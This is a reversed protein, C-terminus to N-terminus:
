EFEDSHDTPRHGTWKWSLRKAVFDLFKQRFQAVSGDFANQPGHADSPYKLQEECQDPVEDPRNADILAVHMEISGRFLGFAPNNEYLGISNIEVDILYDAKFYKGIDAPKMEAWKPHSSKFDEVKRPALIAIREQNDACAAQLQRALAEALQRDAQILEPRTELGRSSVLIAVRVEKNKDESALRRMEPETKPEPMLFYLMSGLDCGSVALLLAAAVTWRGFTAM